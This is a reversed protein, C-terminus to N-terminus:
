RNWAALATKFDESNIKVANVGARRVAAMGAERAIGKLEAGTTSRLMESITQLDVDHSLTCSRTVVELIRRREPATDARKLNLILGLRGPRTLAADLDDERSTTAVILIDTSAVIGDMENLVASLVRSQVGGEGGDGGGRRSGIADIDDILVICPAQVRAQAFVRRVQASSEGFYRSFLDGAEVCLLPTKAECAIARALLSKGCGPPGSLLIGRPASLGLNKGITPNRWRAIARRLMGKVKEHGGVDSFHPSQPVTATVVQGIGPNVVRYIELARRLPDRRPVNSVGQLTRSLNVLRQLDRPTFGASGRAIDDLHTSLDSEAVPSASNSRSVPDHSAILKELIKRRANHNPYSMKIRHNFLFNMHRPPSHRCAVVIISARRGEWQNQSRKVDEGQASRSFSSGEIWEKIVHSIRSSEESFESSENRKASNKLFLEPHDILILDVPTKYAKKLLTGGIRAMQRATHVDTPSEAQIDVLLCREKFREKLGRLLMTKGMGPGGTVWLGAGKRSSLLTDVIELSRSFDGSTEHLNEFRRFSTSAQSSLTRKQPVGSMVLETRRGIKWGEGEKGGKRKGEERTEPLASVEVVVLTSGFLTLAAMVSSGNAPVVMGFLKRRLLRIFHQGSGYDGLLDCSAKAKSPYRFKLRIKSCTGKSRIATVIGITVAPTPPSSLPACQARLPISSIIWPHLVITGEEVLNGEVVRLCTCIGGKGESGLALRIFQFNSLGIRKMDSQSLRVTLPLSQWASRPDAYLRLQIRQSLSKTEPSTSGSMCINGSIVGDSRSVMVRNGKRGNVGDKSATGSKRM